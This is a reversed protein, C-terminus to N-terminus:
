RVGIMKHTQLSLSWLPNALCYDFAAQTNAALNPGDMPQLRYSAARILSEVKDPTLEPQPYVLKVEDGDFHRLAAGAKPSICVWDIWFPIPRTGNTEIAVYLPVARLADILPRDVQLMPEGGTLVVMPPQIDWSNEPIHDTIREVLDAPERYKTFAQFNTDCFQCIANPRDRERGSWLNCGSFRVFVAPRGSWHGEGQISYFVENVRYTM